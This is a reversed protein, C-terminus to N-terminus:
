IRFERVHYKDSVPLLVTEVLKLLGESASEIGDSKQVTYKAVAIRLFLELFEKRNLLSDPNEDEEDEEYEVNAAHFIVSLDQETLAADLVGTDRCFKMIHAEDINPYCGSKAALILYTDKLGKFNQLFIALCANILFQSSMYKYPKFISPRTDKLFAVKIISTNDTKFDRFVQKRM